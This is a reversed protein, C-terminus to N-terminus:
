GALAHILNHFWGASHGQDHMTSADRLAAIVDGLDGEPRPVTATVPWAAGTGGPHEKLFASARALVARVRRTIRVPAARGSAQVFGSVVLDHGVITEAVTGAHLWSDDAALTLVLDDPALTTQSM